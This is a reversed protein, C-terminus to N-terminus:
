NPILSSDVPAVSACAAAAGSLAPALGVLGGGSFKM